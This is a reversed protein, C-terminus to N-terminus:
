LKPMALSVSSCFSANAPTTVTGKFEFDGNVVATSDTINKGDASYLLFAKAQNGANPVTGKISFNGSQAFIAAAPLLLSATLILKKM